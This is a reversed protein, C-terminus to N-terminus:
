LYLGIPRNVADLTARAAARPGNGDTKASGCFVMKGEKIKIEVLLVVVPEALEQFHVTQIELVKQVIPTPIIANLAAITATAAAFLEDNGLVSSGEFKKGALSLEVVMQNNEATLKEFIIRQNSEM